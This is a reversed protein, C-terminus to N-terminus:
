RGSRTRSLVTLAVGCLIASGALWLRMTLPEYLWVVSAVAAIVPVALQLTAARSAGLGPLAHYWLVYGLASTIAGSLAALAVAEPQWQDWSMGFLLLPLALLTARAFNGATAHLPNGPRRGLLSYGAWALGALAMLVAAWLPPADLGPWVLWALGASAMLWGLWAPTSMREGELRGIAIMGVQVAGFLILAGMGAHLALYAYSFGAAYIFLAAGALWDRRGGAIPLKVGRLRLLLWLMATGSLLRIVTYSAADGHGEYLALRALLSNAALPFLAAVGLLLATRSASTQTM